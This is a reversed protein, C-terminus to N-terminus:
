EERSGESPRLPQVNLEGIDIAPVVIDPMDVPRQEIREVGLASPGALPDITPIPAEAVMRAVTATAVVTNRNPTRPGSPRAAETAGTSPRQRTATPAAATPPAVQPGPVHTQAQQPEAHREPRDRVLVLAAVIIVVLAASAAALRPWLLRGPAPEGLRRMVRREFGPRADADMINRVALDIAADLPPPVNREAM